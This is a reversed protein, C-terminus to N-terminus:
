YIWKSFSNKLNLIWWQIKTFIVCLIEKLFGCKCKGWVICVKPLSKMMMMLQAIKIFRMTVCVAQEKMPFRSNRDYRGLPTVERYLGYLYTDGWQTSNKTTKPRSCTYEKGMNTQFRTHNELSSHSHIFTNITEIGCSYSHLLFIRIWFANSLIKQKCELRLFSSM